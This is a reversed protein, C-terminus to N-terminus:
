EDYEATQEPKQRFIYLAVCLAIGVAYIAWTQTVAFTYLMLLLGIYVPNKSKIKRGYRFAAYGILGFIVSAFLNAASPLAFGQLEPM